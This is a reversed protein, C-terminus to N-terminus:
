IRAYEKNSEKEIFRCLDRAQEVAKESGGDLKLAPKEPIEYPASIGTFDQIDGARAKAYLGKVDREECTALDTSVHVEYFSDRGIIEQAMRRIERTPSIFATLVIMGGDVMLRTVEAIRRINERREEMSFGLDSNLGSRINDGDLLHTLYGDEYLMKEAARALTTKGSGSLGTLWLCMGKQKLLGERDKRTLMGSSDPFINREGKM